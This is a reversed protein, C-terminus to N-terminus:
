AAMILCISILSIESYKLLPRQYRISIDKFINLFKLVYRFLFFFCIFNFHSFFINESFIFSNAEKDLEKYRKGANAFTKLKFGKSNETNDAMTHFLVSISFLSALTILLLPLDNNFHTLVKESTMQLKKLERLHSRNLKFRNVTIFYANINKKNWLGLTYLRSIAWLCSVESIEIKRFMQNLTHAIKSINRVLKSYYRILTQFAKVQSM